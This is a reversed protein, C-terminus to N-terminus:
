DSRRQALVRLLAFPSTGPDGKRLQILSDFVAYAAAGPDLFRPAAVFELRPQDDSHEFTSRSILRAVGSDGLLMRGFYQDTNDIGLWERSMAKLQGGPGLLQTLWMRNYTIPRPSALVVLDASGGFWVHVEPFVEHLSRVIGAVVPLPLQ